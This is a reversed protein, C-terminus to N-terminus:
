EGCLVRLDAAAQEVRETEADLQEEGALTGDLTMVANKYEALRSQLEEARRKVVADDPRYLKPNKLDDRLSGFLAALHPTNDRWAEPSAMTAAVEDRILDVRPALFDALEQCSARQNGRGWSTVGFFALGAFAGIGILALLATLGRGGDDSM